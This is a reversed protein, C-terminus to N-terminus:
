LAEYIAAPLLSTITLLISFTRQLGRVLQPKCVEVQHRLRIVRPSFAKARRQTWSLSGYVFAMHIADLLCIALPNIAICQRSKTSTVVELDLGYFRRHRVMLRSAEYARMDRAFASKAVDQEGKSGVESETHVAARMVRLNSHHLARDNTGCM